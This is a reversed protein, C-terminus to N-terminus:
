ATADRLELVGERLMPASVETPAVPKGCVVEHLPLIGDATDTL